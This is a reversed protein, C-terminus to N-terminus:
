PKRATFVITSEQLTSGLLWPFTLFLSPSLSWLTQRLVRAIEKPGLKHHDPRNANIIHYIPGASDTSVWIGTEANRPQPKPYYFRVNELGSKKLISKLSRHYTLIPCPWEVYIEGCPALYNYAKNILEENPNQAVILNFCNPKSEDIETAVECSINEVAQTLLNDAICLSKYPFPDTLLYRWDARRLM